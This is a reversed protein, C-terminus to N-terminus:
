PKTALKPMIGYNMGAREVKAWASDVKDLESLLYHGIEASSSAFKILSALDVTPKGVASAIGSVREVRTHMTQVEVLYDFWASRFEAPCAHVDIAMLGAVREGSLIGAQDKELKM